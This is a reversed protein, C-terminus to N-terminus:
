SHRNATDAGQASHEPHPPAPTDPCASLFKLHSKRYKLPMQRRQEKGNPSAPANPM